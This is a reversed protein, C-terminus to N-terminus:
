LLITALPMCIVWFLWSKKALDEALLLKELSIKEPKYPM